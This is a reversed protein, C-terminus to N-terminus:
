GAANVPLDETMVLRGISVKLTRAIECLVSMPIDHAGSEYMAITSRAKGVREALKAQTMGSKRRHEAITNRMRYRM